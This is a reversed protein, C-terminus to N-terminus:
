APEAISALPNLGVYQRRKRAKTKENSKNKFYYRASKYMKVKTDGQYGADKLRDEEKKIIQKNENIWIEWNEKFATSDDFKHIRAFELMEALFEKSFKFRYTKTNINTKTTEASM